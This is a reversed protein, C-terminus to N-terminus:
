REWRHGVLSLSLTASTEVDWCCPYDGSATRASEKERTAGGGKEKGVRMDKVGHGVEGTWRGGQPM